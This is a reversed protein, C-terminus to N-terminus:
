PAKTGDGDAEETPSHKMPFLKDLMMNLRLVNVRREGLIGWTKEETCERVIRRIAEVNCGRTRAVRAMQYEAAEPSIHPDLGSGSATALDVPVLMTNGKDADRLASIRANAAYMLAPNTPALNSGSSAAANYPEPSTASLRGWFYAPGGFQQGILESGKARGNQMIIGGNAEHPWLAQGLGTIVLPYVVGTLITFVILAAFAAYFQRLLEKM